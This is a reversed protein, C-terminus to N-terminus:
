RFSDNQNRIKNITEVILIFYSMGTFLHEASKVDLNYFGLGNLNPYNTARLIREMSSSEVNIWNIKNQIKPLIQFCFRDLMADNLPYYLDNTSCRILTLCSTFIFDHAIKNIRKNVGSLSYLIEINYLKKFIYILIEDPLDDLQIRSYKM